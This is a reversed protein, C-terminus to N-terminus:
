PAQNTHACQMAAPGDRLFLAALGGLAFVGASLLYALSLSGFADEMAGGVYPGVIQGLGVFVNVFGFSAAALRAGFREGCAAGFLGPVGRGTLGFLVSAAALAPLGHLLAFVVAVAAEVFLVTAITAGRGIADSVRGWLVGAAVGLAGMVLFLDGATGSSIGLDVTLRKQFFTFFLLFAFGYFFYVGGLLWARGSRVITGLDAVALGQGGGKEQGYPRDRMVLTAVVAIALTVGGFLYWALRWGDSGGAAVLRPVAPGVLVLALSGGTPVIGTAVGLRRPEFWATMLVISPGMVVATGAGTVFRAVSPVILGTALGTSFMALATIFLGIAVVIRVGFRSALIGGILAMVTYGVQNWSQLSGAQAGSLGLSRQMSPLVASYGFRGLGIVAFIAMFAAGLVVWRYRDGGSASRIM